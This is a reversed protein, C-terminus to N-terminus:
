LVKCLFYTCRHILSNISANKIVNGFWAFLCSLRLFTFSINRRVICIMM